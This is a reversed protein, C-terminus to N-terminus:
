KNALETLPGIRVTTTAMMMKRMVQVTTVARRTPKAKAM